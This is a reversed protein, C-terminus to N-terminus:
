RDTRSIEFWSGNISQLVLTDGNSTTMNALGALSLNQSGGTAHTVTLIDAFMLTIIRGYGSIPIQEITTTGAIYFIDGIPPILTDTASAVIYGDGTINDKIIKHLGTGADYVAAVSYTNLDTNDFTTRLKGFNNGRITYNDSDGSTVYVGYEMNGTAFSTHTTFTNNSINFNDVNAAISIGHYKNAPTYYYEGGISTFTNGIIDTHLVTDAALVLGHGGTNFFQSDFIGVYDAKAIVLGTGSAGAVGMNTAFECGTFVTPSCNSILAGNLSSDFNVYNFYGGPKDFINPRVENPPLVEGVGNSTMVLSYKSTVIEGKSIIFAPVKGVLYIAGSTGYTSAGEVNGGAFTFNSLRFDDCGHGTYDTGNQVVIIASGKYWSINLGSFDASTSDFLRIGHYAQSILVNSVTMNSTIGSATGLYIGHCNDDSSIDTYTLALDKITTFSYASHIIGTDSDAGTNLTGIAVIEPRYHRGGGSGRITMLSTPVVLPASTAYKNAGDGTDSNSGLEITKLGSDLAAQIEEFDDTTGDHVAGWWEPYAVTNQSLGTTIEFTVRGTGSHNFIQYRGADVYGNITLNYDGLSIISGQTFRLTMTAPITISAGTITCDQSILLTSQTAGITTVADNITDYTRVDTWVSGPNAIVLDPVHQAREAWACTTMLIIILSLLFKKM